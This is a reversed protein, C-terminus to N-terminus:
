RPISIGAHSPESRPARDSSPETHPTTTPRPMYRPGNHESRALRILAFQIREFARNIGQSELDRMFGSDPRFILFNEPERRVTKKRALVTRLASGVHAMRVCVATLSGIAIRSGRSALAFSSISGQEQFTAIHRASAVDWLKLVGSGLSALFKGDQSFAVSKLNPMDGPLRALEHYNQGVCMVIILLTPNM